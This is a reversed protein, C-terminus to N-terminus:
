FLRTSRLSARFYKPYKTHFIVIKHLFLWIKKWNWLPARQTRGRSGDRDKVDRYILLPHSQYFQIIISLTMWCEHIVINCLSNINSSDDILINKQKYCKNWLVNYLNSLTIFLDVKSWSIYIGTIIMADANNLIVIAVIMWNGNARILIQDKGWKHSIEPWTSFHPITLRDNGRSLFFLKVDVSFSCTNGCLHNCFCSIFKNSM